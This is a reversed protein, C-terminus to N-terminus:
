GEGQEKNMTVPYKMSYDSETLITQVALRNKSNIVIPCKFNATISGDEKISAIVYILLGSVSEAKIAALDEDTATPSYDKEINYPNLLIFALDKEKLSQMCIISDDKEEFSILGFEHYGEFGYLAQPLTILNENLIEIEGFFRTDIQM